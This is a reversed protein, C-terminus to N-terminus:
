GSISWAWAAISPKSCSLHGVWGPLSPCVEQLLHCGLVELHGGLLTGGEVGESGMSHGLPRRGCLTSWAVWRGLAKLPVVHRAPM